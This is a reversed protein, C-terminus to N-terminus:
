PAPEAPPPPSVAAPLELRRVASLPLVRRVGTFHHTGDTEVGSLEDVTVHVENAGAFYWPAMAPAAPTAQPIMGFVLVEGVLFTLVTGPPISRTNYGGLLGHIPYDRLPM